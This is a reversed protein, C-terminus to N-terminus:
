SPQGYATAITKSIAAHARDLLPEGHASLLHAFKLKLLRSFDSADPKAANRWGPGINAEKFFGRADMSKASADDFYEDPGTWNQLSDCSLLIGDSRDLRLIAEATAATEFVFASGDSVPGPADPTLALDTKVGREHPMNEPAWVPADYRDRYFADDRGHFAGLKVINQVAGIAELQALRAEDLRLTNVLTLADGDKVVIMNRSFQVKNGGFEPRVQGTVFFVGPLIEDLDGHPLQPPHIDNM